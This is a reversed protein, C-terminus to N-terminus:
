IKENFDVYIFIGCLFDFSNNDKDDIYESM